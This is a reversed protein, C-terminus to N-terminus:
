ECIPGQHYQDVIQDLFTPFQFRSLCSLSMRILTQNDVEKNIAELNEKLQHNFIMISNMYKEPIKGNIDFSYLRKSLIYSITHLLKIEIIENLDPLGIKQLFKLFGMTDDNIGNILLLNVLEHIQDETFFSTFYKQVKESVSVMCALLTPPTKKGNLKFEKFLEELIEKAKNNVKDPHYPDLLKSLAMQAPKKFHLASSSVLKILYTISNDLYGSSLFLEQNYNALIPYMEMVIMQNSIAKSTKLWSVFECIPIFNEDFIEKNAYTLLHKIVIAVNSNIENDINKLQREKFIDNYIRTLMNMQEHRDRKCIEKICEEILEMGKKKYAPKKELIISKFLDTLNYKRIKNFTIFQAHKILELLMMISSYRKEPINLTVVCQTVDEEIQQAINLGGISVLVGYVYVGIEILTEDLTKLTKHSVIPGFRNVFAVIENENLIKSYAIVSLLSV